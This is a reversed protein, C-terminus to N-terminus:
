ACSNAGEDRIRFQLRAQLGGPDWTRQLAGNLQRELTAKIITSGFGPTRVISPPPGGVEKWHLTVQGDCVDWRVAVKGHSSSLGGHLMANSIMEHIVLTLPQVDQAAMEVQPGDLAVRWADHPEVEMRILRDLPAGRWGHEALLTHARVLAGIRCQVAAAYQAPDDARTLRVIGAVVSLVNLIRHDVEKLLRHEAEELKQVRRLERDDDASL